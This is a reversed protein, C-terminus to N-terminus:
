AVHSPGGEEHSNSTFYSDMRLYLAANVSESINATTAEMAAASAASARGPSLPAERAYTSRATAAPPAGGASGGSGALGHSLAAIPAPESEADCSRRRALDDCSREVWGPASESAASLWPRAPLPPLAPPAGGAAM